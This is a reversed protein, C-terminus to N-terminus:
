PPILRELVDEPQETSTVDWAIKGDRDIIWMQPIFDTHLQALTKGAGYGQPWTFGVDEVFQESLKRSDSAESTLGLAVLGRPQYKAVVKKLHPALRRCPKCWYAWADILVVKGRLDEDEPGPGNIWGEVQLSPRKMGIMGFGPLPEHKYPPDRFMSAFGYALLAVIVLTAFLSWGHGSPPPLEDQSM